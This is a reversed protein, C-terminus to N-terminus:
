VIMDKVFTYVLLSYPCNQQSESQVIRRIMNAPIVIMNQPSRGSRVSTASCSPTLVHSRSVGDKRSQYRNETIVISPFLQRQTPSVRPKTVLSSAQLSERVQPCTVSFITFFSM